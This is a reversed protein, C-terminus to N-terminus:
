GNETERQKKNYVHSRCTQIANNIKRIHSELRHVKESLISVEGKILIKLASNLLTSTLKITEEEVKYEGNKSLEIGIDLERRDLYSELLSSLDGYINEIEGYIYNLKDQAQLYFRVDFPDQNFRIEEQIDNFEDLYKNDLMNQYEKEAYQNLEQANM